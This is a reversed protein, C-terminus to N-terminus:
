KSKKTKRRSVIFKNSYKNVNRTKRGGTVNGWKDKPRKTGRPHRGKGGGYPHDCANMASGRVTPRIGKHRNRGAKGINMLNHEINSVAGITAFCDKAVKRVESSPMKLYAYNGELGVMTLYSGASRALKSGQNPKLEVNHVQTGSPINVLQLRNGIKLDTNDDCLITDGIKIGEPAVIYSRAGNKYLLLAIFGSRYPDYEITEIKAPIGKYLQEFEIMRYNKKVAGGKHRMSIKGSSSRGQAPKFGKTLAKHPKSVTFVNRDIDIHHRKTPTTPNFKKM